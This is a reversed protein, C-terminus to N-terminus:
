DHRQRRLAFAAGAVLAVVAVTGILMSWSRGNSLGTPPTRAGDSPSATVFPGPLVTFRGEPLCAVSQESLGGCAELTYRGPELNPVVFEAVIVGEADASVDFLELRELDDVVIFLGVHEVPTNSPCCTLWSHGTVFIVEGPRGQRDALDVGNASATGAILSFGVISVVVTALQLVGWRM